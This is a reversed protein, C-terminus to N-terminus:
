YGDYGWVESLYYFIFGSLDKIVVFFEYRFNTLGYEDFEFEDYVKDFFCIEGKSIGVVIFGNELFDYEDLEFDRIFLELFCNM